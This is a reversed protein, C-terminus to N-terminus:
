IHLYGFLLYVLVDALAKYLTLICVLIVSYKVMYKTNNKASYDCIYKKSMKM